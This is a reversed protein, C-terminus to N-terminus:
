DHDHFNEPFFRLSSFQNHNRLYHNGLLYLFFHEWEASSLVSPLSILLLLSHPGLLVFPSDFLNSGDTKILLECTGVSNVRFRVLKFALGFYFKNNDNLSSRFLVPLTLNAGDTCQSSNDPRSNSPFIHAM